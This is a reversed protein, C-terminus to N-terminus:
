RNSSEVDISGGKANYNLLKPIKIMVTTGVGEVGYLSVTYEEGFYAVLRERVNKIGYGGTKNHKKESEAKIGIGDDKIVIYLDNQVEYMKFTILGSERDHLGHMIANEVFPQLTLKPIYCHKDKEPIDIRYHFHHGLRIQQIQLYSELHILEDKIRILSEGNSLGIRFMKGMLELVQSIKGQGEEIAMWNLQDLTNYLFHPNINAQLAAVEAKRKYHFERELDQYLKKINMILKKYGRFLSGFENKYDHPLDEEKNLSFSDMNNMLIKIPKTFQNSLYLTLIIILGITIMGISFLLTALQKSGKSVEGWPTVELLLWGTNFLKSWVVFNEKYRTFGDANLNLDPNKNLEELISLYDDTKLNGNFTIANGSSDILLRNVKKNDGKILRKFSTAKMNVILIAAAKQDATYVKRAFSIVPTKGQASQITHKSLWSSDSDKLPKLWDTNKNQKYSYYRIPGVKEKVPPYDLYVQISDITPLSFAINLFSSNIKSIQRYATYKDEVEQGQLYEQLDRNRSMVLTVEEISKKQMSIQENMERLLKQQYYSTNHTMQKITVQYSVIVIIALLLAMFGAFVAFFVYSIPYQKFLNRM